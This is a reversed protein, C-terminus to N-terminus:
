EVVFYSVRSAYRYRLLKINNLGITDMLAQTEGPSDHDNLEDFGIVSGKVLRPLIAKLCEKTPIYLDFDFFALAIITEPNGELYHHITQTADGVCLEFKQIHSLPNDKEQCKLIEYLFYQYNDTISLQGERMMPSRGDKEHIGIFGTFTDFGIIKRHRNYPEYIGRLASFLSLNQGWRVGFEMVVGSVDIIKKYLYDFFLIRSLHKSNLFLGLNSLLQDRPIPCTKFLNYLGERVVKEDFSDYTIIDTPKFGTQDTMKVGM